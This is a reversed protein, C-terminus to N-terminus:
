GDKKELPIADFIRSAFSREKLRVLLINTVPLGEGTHREVDELPTNRALEVKDAFSPDSLLWLPYIPNTMGIDFASKMHCLRLWDAKSINPDLIDTYDHNM